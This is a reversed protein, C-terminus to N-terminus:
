PGGRLIVDACDSRGVLSGVAAAPEAHGVLGLNEQFPDTDLGLSAEGPNFHGFRKQVIRFDGFCEDGDPSTEPDDLSNL